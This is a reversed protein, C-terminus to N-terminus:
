YAKVEIFLGGKEKSLKRRGAPHAISNVLSSFLPLIGVM